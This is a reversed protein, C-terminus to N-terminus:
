PELLAGHGRLGLGHGYGIELPASRVRRRVLRLELSAQARFIHLTASVLFFSADDGVHLDRMPAGCYHRKDHDHIIM